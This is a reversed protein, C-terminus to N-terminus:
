KNVFELTDKVKYGKKYMEALKDWKAQKRKEEEEMIAFAIANKEEVMAFFEKERAEGVGMNIIIKELKPVALKNTYSFKKTM